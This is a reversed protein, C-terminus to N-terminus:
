HRCEGNDQRRRRRPYHYNALPESFEKVSDVKMNRVYLLLLERSAVDTLEDLQLAFYSSAKVEAVVQELIDDSM